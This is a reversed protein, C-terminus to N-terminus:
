GKVSIGFFDSITAEGFVDYKYSEVYYGNPDTLDIVSGLGDFHYYFFGSKEFFYNQILYFLLV